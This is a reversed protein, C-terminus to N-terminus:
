GGLLIPLLYIRDEDRVISNLNGWKGNILVVAENEQIDHWLIERLAVPKELLIKKEKEGFIQVFHGFFKLLAM